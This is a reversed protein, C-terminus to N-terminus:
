SARPVFVPAIVGDFDKWAVALPLDIYVEDSQCGELPALVILREQQELEVWAMVARGGQADPEITYSYVRSRGSVEERGIHDSWCKPCVARPPHIWFKCDECRAIVLVNRAAGEWYAATDYDIRQAENM